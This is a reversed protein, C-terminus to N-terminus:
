KIEGVLEELVDELTVLGIVKEDENLVIALHIKRKKFERLLENIRKTGQVFFPLHLIKKLEIEKNPRRSFQHLDKTYLVGVINDITGDFIPIRSFSTKLIKPVIDNLNEKIDISFIDERPTMVGSVETESLEFVSHIMDREESDIIGQNEGVDVMIRLEEETIPPENIIKKGGSLFVVMDAISTMFWQLPLIVISFVKLPFSIFLSFGEAHSISFTKPIIEGFLLILFTGVGISIGLGKDGFIYIALSTVIAAFSVNVLENGIYIIVLLRRPNEMLSGIIKGRRGGDEKLKNIRMNGLSFLAAESGSFIASLILLITLLILRIIIYEDM